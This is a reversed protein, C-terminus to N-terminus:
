LFFFSAINIFATKGRRTCMYISYFHFCSWNLQWNQIESLSVHAHKPFSQVTQKLWWYFWKLVATAPKHSLWNIQTSRTLWFLAPQIYINLISPTTIVPQLFLHSPIFLILVMKPYIFTSQAPMCDCMGVSPFSTCHQRQDDPFTLNSHSTWCEM